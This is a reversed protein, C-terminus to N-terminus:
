QQLCWPRVEHLFDAIKSFDTRAPPVSPRSPPQHLSAPALAAGPRRPLHLWSPGVAAASCWPQGTEPCALRASCAGAEKLGRSTMAPAGIRVGGPTLASVDGVVPPPPTPLLQLAKPATDRAMLGLCPVRRCAGGLGGGARGSAEGANKNLTVHCLDCAKEMKSGTVGEPRLDWLVLHNDALYDPHALASSHSSLSSM